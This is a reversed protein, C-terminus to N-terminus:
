EMTSLTLSTREIVDGASLYGFDYAALNAALALGMNTPSTRHAVGRPPDEQFNDPPLHNDAANVFVEFFRWTRRALIPLFRRDPSGLEARPRVLPQSVWWAVAPDVAWAVALVSWSWPLP